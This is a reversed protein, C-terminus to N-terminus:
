LSAKGQEQGVVFLGGATRIPGQNVALNVDQFYLDNDIWAQFGRSSDWQFNSYAMTGCEMRQLHQPCAVRPKAPPNQLAQIWWGFLGEPKM